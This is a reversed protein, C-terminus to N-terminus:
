TRSLIVRAQDLWSRLMDESTASGPVALASLADLHQRLETLAREQAQSRARHAKAAPALRGIAQWREDSERRAHDLETLLAELDARDPAQGAVLAQRVRVEADSRSPTDAM